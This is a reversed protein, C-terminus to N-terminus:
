GLHHVNLSEKRPPYTAYLYIMEKPNDNVYALGEKVRSIIYNVQPNKDRIKMIQRIFPFQSFKSTFLPHDFTGFRPISIILDTYIELSFVLCSDVRDEPEFEYISEDLSSVRLLYEAIINIDKEFCKSICFFFFSLKAKKVREINESTNKFIKKIKPINQANEPYKEVVQGQSGQRIEDFYLRRSVPNELLNKADLSIKAVKWDMLVKVSAFDVEFNLTEMIQSEGFDFDEQTFNTKRLNHRKFRHANVDKELKMAIFMSCVGILHLDKNEFDPNNQRMLFMDLIAITRHFVNTMMSEPENYDVLVNLFWDIILRRHPLTVRNTELASKLPYKKIIPAEKPHILLISESVDAQAEPKQELPNPNQTITENSDKLFASHSEEM